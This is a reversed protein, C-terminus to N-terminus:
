GDWSNVFLRASEEQLQGALSKIDIGTQLFHCCRKATVVMRRRYRDSSRVNALANLTVEPMTNVTFPAALARAFLLESATADKTGTSAWESRHSPGYRFHNLYRVRNLRGYTPGM